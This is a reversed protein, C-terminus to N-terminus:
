IAPMDTVKFPAVSDERSTSERQIGYYGDGRRGGARWWYRTVRFKKEGGGAAMGIHMYSSALSRVFPIYAFTWVICIAGEGREAAAEAARYM